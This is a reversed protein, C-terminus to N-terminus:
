FWGPSGSDEQVHFQGGKKFASNPIRFFFEISKMPMIRMIDLPCELIWVGVGCVPKKPPCFVRSQRPDRRQRPQCKRREQTTARPCPAEPYFADAPSARRRSANVPRRLIRRASPAVPRDGRSPSFVKGPPNPPNARGTWSVSAAEHNKGLLDKGGPRAGL